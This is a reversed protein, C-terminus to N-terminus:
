QTCASSFTTQSMAFSAEVTSLKFWAFIARYATSMHSNSPLGDWTLSRGNGRAIITIGILAERRIELSHCMIKVQICEWSAIDHSSEKLQSLMKKASINKDRDPIQTLTSYLVKLAWSLQVIACIWLQVIACVSLPMESEQNHHKICTSSSKTLSNSGYRRYPTPLSKLSPLM